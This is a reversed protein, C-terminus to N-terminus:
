GLPALKRLGFVHAVAHLVHKKAVLQKETNSLACSAVKLNAFKM